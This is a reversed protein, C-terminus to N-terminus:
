TFCLLIDLDISFARKEQNTTLLLSATIPVKLSPLLSSTNHKYSSIWPRSPPCPQHYHCRSVKLLCSWTILIFVLLGIDQNRDFSHDIDILMITVVFHPAARGERCKRLGAKMSWLWVSIWVRIMNLNLNMMILSSTPYIVNPRSIEIQCVFAKRGMM